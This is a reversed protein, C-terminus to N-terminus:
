RGRWSDGGEKWSGPNIGDQPINSEWISATGSELCFEEEGGPFITVMWRTSLCFEQSDDKIGRRKVWSMLDKQPYPQSQRWFMIGFQWRRDVGVAEVEM